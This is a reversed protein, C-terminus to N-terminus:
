GRNNERTSRVHMKGGTMRVNCFGVWLGENFGPRTAGEGAHALDKNNVCKSGTRLRLKRSCM